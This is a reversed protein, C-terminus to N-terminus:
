YTPGLCYTRFRDEALDGGSWVRLAACELEEALVECDPERGALAKVQAVSTLVGCGLRAERNAEDVRVDELVGEDIHM